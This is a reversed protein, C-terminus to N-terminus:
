WSSSCPSSCSGICSVASGTHTIAFNKTFRNSRGDSLKTPVSVMSAEVTGHYMRGTSQHARFSTLIGQWVLYLAQTRVKKEQEIEARKDIGREWFWEYIEGELYAAALEPELKITPWARMEDSPLHTDATKPLDTRAGAFISMSTRSTPPNNRAAHLGSSSSPIPADSNEPGPGARTHSSMTLKDTFASASHVISTKLSAIPLHRFFVNGSALAFISQSTVAAPYSCSM